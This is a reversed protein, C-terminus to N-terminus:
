KCNYARGSGAIDTDLSEPKGVYCVSGSGAISIKLSKEVKVKSGGSGAVSVEANHCAMDDADVDGSGAVSVNLDDGSGALSIDGSGALSLSLDDFRFSGKTHIKGSGALSIDVIQPATVYVKISSVDVNKRKNWETYISLTNDKVETVLVELAEPTGTVTVGFTSGQEIIVEFSGASALKKFETVTRTETKQASVAIATCAMIAAFLLKKM